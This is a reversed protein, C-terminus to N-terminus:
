SSRMTKMLWKDEGSRPRTRVVKTGLHPWDTCNVQRIAVDATRCGVQLNSAVRHNQQGANEINATQELIAAIGSRSDVRCGLWRKRARAAAEFRDPRNSGTRFTTSCSPQSISSSGDSTRVSTLMSRGRLMMVRLVEGSMGNSREILGYRPQSCPQM